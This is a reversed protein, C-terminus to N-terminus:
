GPPWAMKRGGLIHFHIHYVEQGSDPGTNLVVRYGTRELGKDRALDRAKILLRGLRPWADDGAEALSGIHEKPILLLHVPAQPRIDEFALFDEDEYVVRSPIDKNVIRCFLCNGM